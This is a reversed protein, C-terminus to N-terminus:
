LPCPEFMLFHINMAVDTMVVDSRFSRAAARTGDCVDSGVSDCGSRRRATVERQHLSALIRNLSWPQPPFRGRQFGDSKALLSDTIPRVEILTTSCAFALCADCLAAGPEQKLVAAQL